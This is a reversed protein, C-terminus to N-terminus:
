YLLDLSFGACILDLSKAALRKQISKIYGNM